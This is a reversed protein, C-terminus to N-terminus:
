CVSPVASSPLDQITNIINYVYRSEYMVLAESDPEHSNNELQSLQVADTMIEREDVDSPEHREVCGIRDATKM